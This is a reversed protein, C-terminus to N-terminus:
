IKKLIKKQLLRKIIIPSKELKYIVKMEWKCNSNEITVFRPQMDFFCGDDIFKSIDNISSGLNSKCFILHKYKYEM